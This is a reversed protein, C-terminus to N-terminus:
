DRVGLQAFARRVLAADNSHRIPFSQESSFKLSNVGMVM